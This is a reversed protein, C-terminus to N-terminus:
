EEETTTKMPPLTRSTSSLLQETAKTEMAKSHLGKTGTAQHHLHNLMAKTELAQHSLTVKSLNIEMLQHLHNVMLQNLLPNTTDLTLNVLPWGLLYHNGNQNGKEQKSGM